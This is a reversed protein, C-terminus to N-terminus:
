GQFNQFLTAEHHKFVCGDARLLGVHNGAQFNLM